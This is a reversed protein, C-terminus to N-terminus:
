ITATALFKGHEQSWVIWALVVNIAALFVWFWASIPEEEKLGGPVYAVFTGPFLSFVVESSRARDDGPRSPLAQKHSNANNM